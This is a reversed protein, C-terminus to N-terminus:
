IDVLFRYNTESIKIATATVSSKEDLDLIITFENKLLDIHGEFSFVKQAFVLKPVLIILIIFLLFKPISMLEIVAVPMVSLVM